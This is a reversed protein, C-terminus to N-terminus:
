YRAQGVECGGKARDHFRRARLRVARLDVGFTGGVVLMAMLRRGETWTSMPPRGGKGMALVPAHCDKFAV